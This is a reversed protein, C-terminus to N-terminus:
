KGVGASGSYPGIKGLVHLHVLGLYGLAALLIWPMPSGRFNLIESAHARQGVPQQAPSAVAVRRYHYDADIGGSPAGRGGVLPSDPHVGSMQAWTQAGLSPDDPLAFVGGGQQQGYAM